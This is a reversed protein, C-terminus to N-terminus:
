ARYRKGPGRHLVSIRVDSRDFLNASFCYPQESCVPFLDPNIDARPEIGNRGILPQLELRIYGTEDSDFRMVCVPLVELDRVSSGAGPARPYM